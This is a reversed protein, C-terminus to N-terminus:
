PSTLGERICFKTLGAITYIELKDMIQKRHTEVTKVSIALAAAVEKTTKGDAILQLVQLERKTLRESRLVGQDPVKSPENKLAGSEIIGASLYMEGKRIATLAKTLEEFAADKLLYASAGAQLVQLVYSRNAHMSLVIVKTGPLEAKIARTADIGNLDPMAIDMVIIDPRLEKTMEIAQQGNEAEGVCEFENRREELLSRLGERMIKHDDAILVPIRATTGGTFRTAPAPSGRPEVTKASYPKVSMAIVSVALCGRIMDPNAQNYEAM